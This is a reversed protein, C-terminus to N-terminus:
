KARTFGKVACGDARKSASSRVTGGKKMEFNPNSAGGKIGSIKGAGGMGGRGSRSNPKDLDLRQQRPDVRKKEVKDKDIEERLEKQATRGELVFKQLKNLDVDYGDMKTYRSPTDLNMELQDPKAM